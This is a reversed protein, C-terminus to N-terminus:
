WPQISRYTGTYIKRFANLQKRSLTQPEQIVYWQVNRNCMPTTFSGLFKWSVTSSPILQNFDIGLDKASTESHVYSHHHVPANDLIKGLAENGKGIDFLIGVVSFEMKKNTMVVHMELPYRKGNVTNESQSHMHIQKITYTKGDILATSEPGFTVELSHGTDEIHRPTAFDFSMGKNFVDPKRNRNKATLFTKDNIDVPSQAGGDDKCYSPYKEGWSDKYQYYPPPTAVDSNPSAAYLSPSVILASLLITKLKM